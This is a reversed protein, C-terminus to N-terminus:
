HFTVRHGSGALAIWELIRLDVRDYGRPLRAMARVTGAVVDPSHAVPAAIITAGYNFNLRM